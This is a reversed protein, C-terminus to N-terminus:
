AQRIQDKEPMEVLQGDVMVARKNVTVGVPPAPPQEPTVSVEPVSQQIQAESM